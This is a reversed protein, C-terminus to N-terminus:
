GALALRGEWLRTWGELAALTLIFASQGRWILAEPTLEAEAAARDIVGLASLRGDILWPRLVHLNDVVLRSYIRTMEGKSRRDVIQAPLRNRFARRALGRDRGGIALLHTPLALCAEAVPQSCFPHRVDVSRTLVSPGHHSVSDAVGAIQFAKAPGFETLDRLWPHVQLDSSLPPLLPHNRRLPRHGERRHRRAHGIMSWVSIENAAALETLDQWGLARWGRVRWLDTFVDTTAAQFLISDGGKGTMLATAGASRLHGAWALDQAHDLANLGPRWGGSLNELWDTTIPGSEHPVCVPAFGLSQGLARVYDREDSEPTKGYANLWIRTRDRDHRALTSAIISSDLGGSVEVALAGPLGALGAVVDDIASRLGEMAVEIPPAACLSQRAFEAPTWIAEAPQTLPFPQVTGPGLATPGDILLDGTGAVLTHAAQALRSVSIRWPPRLRKLLWPEASSCVFTLGDQTWTVCELAGSPDRMLAIPEDRPGFLVGIFRGWFRAALKREYDWPDSRRAVPLLPSRRDFVDGILTWSGVRLTKAPAPGRVALWAHPNLPAVTLGEQAARHLFEASLSRAAEDGPKRCVLLYEGM